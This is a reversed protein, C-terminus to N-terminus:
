ADGARAADSAGTAPTVVIALTCVHVLNTSPNTSPSASM